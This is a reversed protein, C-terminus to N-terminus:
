STMNFVNDCNLCCALTELQWPKLIAKIGTANVQMKGLSLPWRDGVHGLCGAMWDGLRIRGRPVDPGAYPRDQGATKPGPVGTPVPGRPGPRDRGGVSVLRRPVLSDAASAVLPGIHGGAPQGLGCAAWSGTPSPCGAPGDAEAGLSRSPMAARPWPAM